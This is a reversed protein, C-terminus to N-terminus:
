YVRNPVYCQPPGYPTKYCKHCIGHYDCRSVYGYYKQPYGNVYCVAYGPYAICRVPPPPPGQRVIIVSSAEGTSFAGLGIALLAVTYSFKLNKLNM